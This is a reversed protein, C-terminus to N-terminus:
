KLLQLPQPKWDTVRKTQWQIYDAIQKRTTNMSDAYSSNMSLLADALTAQTTWQRHHVGGCEREGEALARTFRLYSGSGDSYKIEDVTVEVQRWSYGSFQGRVRASYYVNYWGKSEGEAVPQRLKDQTNAIQIDRLRASAIATKILSTDQEFPLHGSGTRVGEFFGWKVTYGHKSLVGGPLKQICGCVQCTGKHTAKNKM